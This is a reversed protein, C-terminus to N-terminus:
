LNEGSIPIVATANNAGGYARELDALAHLEAIRDALHLALHATLEGREALHSFLAEQPFRRM